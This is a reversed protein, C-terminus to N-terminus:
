NTFKFRLKIVLLNIEIEVSILKRIPKVKFGKVVLSRM